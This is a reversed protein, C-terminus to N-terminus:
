QGTSDERRPFQFLLRRASGQQTNIESGREVPPQTDRAPSTGVGEPIDKDRTQSESNTRTRTRPYIGEGDARRLPRSDSKGLKDPPVQDQRGPSREPLTLDKSRLRSANKPTPTTTSRRTQECGTEQRKQQGTKTSIHSCRPAPGTQQFSPVETHPINAM